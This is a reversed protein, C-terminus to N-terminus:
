ATPAPTTNESSPHIEEPIEPKTNHNQIRVHDGVVLLPLRKTHEAWRESAQMHRNRLAEERLALTDKWTPHPIYRGPPIPIFDKSPRGFVCQAPSLKTSPDPTNQYQLIARQFANTNIDGHPDTNNTILRKVTKVGVEARCNSHPFAVSSLRHHVGWDKLFQQTSQAIFQPGGDTACEDPIGYTAFTRRLSEILGASGDRAREVIPWNSYRDVAVLYNVGKYHFYDACICQFPYAPLAPPYPPASPQSPTMHNCHSCRERQATIAPTIGPWFIAFEARATMSTVGQHASHLTTLVTERLSLPIVIRDKYLIVGDVTHLHQRFRYYEQLAPPLPHQFEPFGSEIITTLALLDPDSTTALKVREWTVAITSHTSSAASVLEHDISFSCSDQPSEKTRINTLLPHQILNEQYLHTPQNITAIDDPLTLLSPHTPGTPHRSIADTAKHRVDPIHVMRFKYRLTKEKLNRLRGNSIEDLSRDGFVKQLPKHDVAIILNDCGLVFFRAKDLADAVALAEGEIPAYRSEEAHTFRSGVLTVKWGSRCCFPDTFPCHCHKQFLWYGIGTKSWDTALCTPKSKDFIRVGDKIESIIMSKSEDFLRQLEDNWLFQTGPKLSERFPLMRETAAFAYSVQNVLGFWSRMDTKNTPTPFHRIADLYKACPRVTM